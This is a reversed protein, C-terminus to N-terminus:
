ADNHRYYNFRSNFKVAAIIGEEGNSAQETKYESSLIEVIYNRVDVNDEVVLIIEKNQEEDSLKENQLSNDTEIMDASINNIEPFNNLGSYEEGLIEKKLNFDGVPLEIIFLTGEGPKSEVRITGKHLTILEKTLALGIGTGEHERTTSSDVQYFRDFIKVIRDAPIGIGSDKICIEM